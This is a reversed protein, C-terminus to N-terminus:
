TLGSRDIGTFGIHPRRLPDTDRRAGLERSFAPECWAGLELKIGDPDSFYFSALYTEDTVDQLTDVVEGAEIRRRRESSKARDVAIADAERDGSLKEIGHAVFYFPVGKVELRAWARALSDRPVEAVLHHASADAAPELAPDPRGADPRRNPFWFFASM